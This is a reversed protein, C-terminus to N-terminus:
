KRQEKLLFAVRDPEVDVTAAQRSGKKMVGDLAVTTLKKPGVNAKVIKDIYFPEGAKSEVRNISPVTTKQIDAAYFHGPIAEGSVSELYFMVPKNLEIRVVKDPTANWNVSSEKGFKGKDKVTRVWDGLKIVNGYADKPTEVINASLEKIPEVYQQKALLKQGDAGLKYARDPTLHEWKVNANQPDSYPLKLASHPTNNYRKIIIHIASAWNASRQESLYKEMWLKITRM